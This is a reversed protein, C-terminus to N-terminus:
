FSSPLRSCVLLLGKRCFSVVDKKKDDPFTIDFSKRAASAAPAYQDFQSKMWSSIIIKLQPALARGAKTAIELHALQM